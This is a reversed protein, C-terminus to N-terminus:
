RGKVTPARRPLRHARGAPDGPLVHAARLAAAVWILPLGILATPDVTEIREFLTIGRGEVRFSGACDLPRDAAVYAAIEESDLTRFVCRTEDVHQRWYGAQLGIVAVATHFLVTQGSEAALQARATAADGPKGLVSDGLACVQDAGIVIADPYREAVARAKALALRRALADPTEGPRRSEDVDPPECRFEIGLRELLARRHRSTSALWVPRALAAHKTVHTDTASFL